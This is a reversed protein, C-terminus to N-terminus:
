AWFALLTLWLQPVSLDEFYQRFKIFIGDQYLEKISPQESFLSCTPSHMSTRITRRICGLKHLPSISAAEAKEAERIM